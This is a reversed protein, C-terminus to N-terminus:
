KRLIQRVGLLVVFGGFLKSLYETPIKQLLLYGIGIGIIGGLIMPITKKFDILGKKTYIILSFLACPIFFLLNIGQAKTQGYSLVSTLFLILVTGAGFGMSCLLGALFSSIVVYISIM